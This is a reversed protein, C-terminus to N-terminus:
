PLKVTPQFKKEIWPAASATLRLCEDLRNRIQFLALLDIAHNEMARSILQRGSEFNAVGKESYGLRDGFEAQTLGLELRIARLDRGLM